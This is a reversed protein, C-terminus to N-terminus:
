GHDFDHIVDEKSMHEYGHIYNYIEARQKYSMVGILIEADLQILMKTDFAIERSSIFYPLEKWNADYTLM